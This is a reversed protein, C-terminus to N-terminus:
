GIQEGYVYVDFQYKKIKQSDKTDQIDALKNNEYDWYWYIKINVKKNKLINGDLYDSLEELTTTEAIIKDERYAIFKLNKPKENISKFVIKYKLDKNSDLIINFNGSTGPAIKEYIIKEKDVTNLLEISKFNINNYKVNFEYKEINNVEQKSIGKSFFKLFAYDDIKSNKILNTSFFIKLLIIILIFIVIFSINKKIKKQM